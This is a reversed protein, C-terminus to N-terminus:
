AFKNVPELITVLPLISQNQANAVMGYHAIGFAYCLTVDVPVM